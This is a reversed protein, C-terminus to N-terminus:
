IVREIRLAVFSPRSVENDNLKTEWDHMDKSLDM